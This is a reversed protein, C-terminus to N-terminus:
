GAPPRQHQGGKHACFIKRRREADTGVVTDGIKLGFTKIQGPSVYVDDPSSLYNYDSSRLFGYGDPMLELVGESRVVGDFEANFASPSQERQQIQPQQAQQQRRETNRQQNIAQNNVPITQLVVPIPADAQVNGEEAPAQAVNTAGPQQQQQQQRQQNNAPNQRNNNPQQPNRAPQQQRNEPNSGVPQQRNEPNIGPQQQRNETNSSGERQFRQRGDRTNEGQNNRRDERPQGNHQRRDGRQETAPQTGPQRTQAEEAPITASTTQSIEPSGGETAAPQADPTTQVQGAEQNRSLQAWEAGAEASQNAVQEDPTTVAAAANKAPRGRRKKPEGGEATAIASENSAAVANNETADAVAELPAAEKVKPPRGRRKKAEEGSGGEPKTSGKADLLAQHDIIKYILAQKDLGSADPISLHRAVDLLEPVILDNLHNIDYPM